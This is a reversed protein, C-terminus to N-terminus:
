WLLWAPTVTRPRESEGLTDGAGGDSEDHMSVAANRFSWGARASARLCPRDASHLILHGMFARVTDEGDSEDTYAVLKWFEIPIRSGARLGM